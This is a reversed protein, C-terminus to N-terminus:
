PEQSVSLVDWKTDTNNYVAGIYMLKSWITGTPLSLWIPRYQTDWTLASSVWNDKIRILLKQGETPTGSPNNFKLAWNQATIIFEDCVDVNLSTWTDTTYSAASVIKKVINKNTLTQIATAYVLTGSADPVTITRTTWTSLGWVDFEMKATPDATKSIFFNKLNKANLDLDSSAWTYPVLWSVLSPLNWTHVIKYRDAM